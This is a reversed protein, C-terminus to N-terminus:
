QAVRFNSYLTKKHVHLVGLTDGVPQGSGNRTEEQCEEWGWFLSTLHISRDCALYLDCTVNQGIVLWSCTM